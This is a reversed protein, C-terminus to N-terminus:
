VVMKRMRRNMSAKTSQKLTQRRMGPVHFKRWNRMYAARCPRCYGRATPTEGCCPCFHKMSVIQAESQDPQSIANVIKCGARLKTSTWCSSRSM